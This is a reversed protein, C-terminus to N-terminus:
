QTVVVILNLIYKYHQLSGYQVCNTWNRKWEVEQLAEMCKFDRPSQNFVFNRCADISYQLVCLVWIVFLYCPHSKHSLLILPMIQFISTKRDDCLISITMDCLGAKWSSAPLSTNVVGREWLKSQKIVFFFFASWKTNICWQLISSQSPQAAQTTSNYSTIVELLLFCVM